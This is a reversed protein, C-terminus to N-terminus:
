SALLRRLTDVLTAGDYPKGIVAVLADDKFRRVLDADPQGSAVVIPLVPLRARLDAVMGDGARDPLGLDIVAAALAGDAAELRAMAEGATRAEDTLFGADQLLEVTSMRILEEDEVVLVLPPAPRPAVRQKMVVAVGM